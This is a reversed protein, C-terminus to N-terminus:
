SSKKRRDEHTKYFARKDAYMANDARNFVEAYTRDSSPDYTASGISLGIEVDPIHLIPSDQSKEAIRGRIKEIRESPDSDDLITVFEDGGVRYITNGEFTERIDQSIAVILKDGTDHGYYDNIIKLQNIDFVVVSFVYEPDETMKKELTQLYEMYSTRNNMGTLGDIYAHSRYIEIQRALRLQMVHIKEELLEMSDKMGKDGEMGILSPSENRGDGPTVEHILTEIGISIDNMRDILAMFFKGYQSAIMVAFLVSFILAVTIFGTVILVLNMIKDHYWEVGFDAGVVGTINGNSDFVPSYSSYFEGWRDKTPMDDVGPVGKSANYLADTYVIPEGFEAPDEITPDVSFVFERESVQEICYIYELEINDQFCILIDMVRQYKPSGIDEVTLGVLDDGNILAAASNSIDLMRENIQTRMAKAAERTLVFGFIVNFIVIGICLIITYKTAGNLKKM